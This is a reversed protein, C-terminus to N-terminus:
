KTAEVAFAPYVHINPLFTVKKFKLKTLLNKISAKSYMAKHFGFENKQSGFLLRTYWDRDKQTKSKHYGEITGDLDPIDIHVIGGPKLLKHWYKLLIQGEKFSFHEFLQVSRIEDISNPKYPLERVDAHVDVVIPRKEFKKTEFDKRTVNKHINSGYYNKVTTKNIKVLDPRKKALYSWDPIKVDINVYDKLYVTGCGLHLKISDQTM